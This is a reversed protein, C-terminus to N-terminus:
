NGSTDLKQWRPREGWIKGSGKAEKRKQSNACARRLRDLELTSAQGKRKIRFSMGSHMVSCRMELLIAMIIGYMEM